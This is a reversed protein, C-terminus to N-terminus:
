VRRATVGMDDNTLGGVGIRRESRSKFGTRTIAGNKGPDNKGSRTPAVATLYARPTTKGFGYVCFDVPKVTFYVPPGTRVTPRVGM